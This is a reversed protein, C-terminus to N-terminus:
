AALAVQHFHKQLGRVCGAHRPHNGDILETRDKGKHPFFDRGALSWPVYFCDNEDCPMLIGFENIAVQGADCQIFLDYLRDEDGDTETGMERFLAELNVLGHTPNRLAEACKRVRRSEDLLASAVSVMWRRPIEKIRLNRPNHAIRWSLDDSAGRRLLKANCFRGIAQLVADVNLEIIDLCLKEFLLAPSSSLDWGNVSQDPTQGVFYTWVRQEAPTMYAGLWGHEIRGTPPRDNLSPVVMREYAILARSTSRPPPSPKRRTKKPSPLLAPTTNQKRLLDSPKAELLYGGDKMSPTMWTRLTEEFLTKAEKTTLERGYTKSGKGYQLVYVIELIAREIDAFLLVRKGDSDLLDNYLVEYVAAALRERQERNNIGM